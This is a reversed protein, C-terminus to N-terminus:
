REREAPLGRYHRLCYWLVGWCTLCAWTVLQLLETLTM